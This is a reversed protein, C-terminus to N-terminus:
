PLPPLPLLPTAFAIAILWRAVHARTNTLHPLGRAGFPREFPFHTRVFRYPLAREDVEACAAELSTRVAELHTRPVELRTCAVEARTHVAGVRTHAFAVRPAAFSVAPIAFPEGLITFSAALRSLDM